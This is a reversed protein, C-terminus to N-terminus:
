GHCPWFGHFKSVVDGLAMNPRVVIKPLDLPDCRSKFSRGRLGNQSFWWFRHGCPYQLNKEFSRGRLGYKGVGSKLFTCAGGFLAIKPPRAGETALKKCSVKRISITWRRATCLKAGLLVYNSPFKLSQQGLKPLFTALIVLFLGFVAICLWNQSFCPNKSFQDGYPYASGRMRTWCLALTKVTWFDGFKSMKQPHLISNKWRPSPNEFVRDWEVLLTRTSKQPTLWFPSLPRLKSVPHVCLARM